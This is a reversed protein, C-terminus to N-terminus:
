GKKNSVAVQELGSHFEVAGGTAIVQKNGTLLDEDVGEGEGVHLMDVPLPVYLLVTDCVTGQRNEHLM